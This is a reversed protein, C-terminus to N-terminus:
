FILEYISQNHSLLSHLYTLLFEEFLLAFLFFKFFLISDEWFQPATEFQIASIPIVSSPLVSYSFFFVSNSTIIALIEGFNIVPFISYLFYCM